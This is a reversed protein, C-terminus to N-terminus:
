KTMHLLVNACVLVSVTSIMCALMSLTFAWRTWRGSTDLADKTEKRTTDYALQIREEMRKLDNKLDAVLSIPAVSAMCGSRQKDCKEDIARIDKHIDKIQELVFEQKKEVKTLRGDMENSHLVEKIDKIEKAHHAQREEIRDIKGLKNLLAETEIENEAM